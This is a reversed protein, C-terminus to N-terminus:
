HSYNVIDIITSGHQFKKFVNIKVHLPAYRQIYVEALTTFYKIGTQKIYLHYVCLTQNIILM